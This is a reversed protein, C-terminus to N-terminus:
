DLEGTFFSIAGFTQGPGRVRRPGVHPMQVGVGGGGPWVADQDITGLVSTLPNFGTSTSQQSM